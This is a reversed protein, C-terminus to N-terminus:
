IYQQTSLPVIEDANMSHQSQTALHKTRHLIRDDTTLDNLDGRIMIAVRKLDISARTLILVDRILLLLFSISDRVKMDPRKRPDEDWAEPILLRTLPPWSKGVPLRQGETVVKNMFQLSSFGDFAPKCSLMEWLLIAFSFLDCKTDYGQM